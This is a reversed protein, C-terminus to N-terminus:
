IKYESYEPSSSSITAAHQMDVVDLELMCVIGFACANFSSLSGVVDVHFDKM